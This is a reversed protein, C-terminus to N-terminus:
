TGMWQPLRLALRLLAAAFLVLVVVQMVRVQRESRRGLDPDAAAAELFGTRRAISFHRWSGAKSPTGGLASLKRLATVFAGPDSSTRASFLDAQQELRRSFFGFVFVWYLAAFVLMVIAQHTAFENTVMDGVPEVWGGAGLMDVINVYFCVFALAFVMYFGLHHRRIHGVEHAFVAEVEEDTCNALLADTLLVYRLQPVIGVVAANPLHNYTHWVLIDRCRFGERRCLADLRDRLPGPALSSTQWVLRLLGAGLTVITLLVALSLLADILGFNESRGWLIRAIGSVLALLLWPALLVALETRFRLSLYQRLSLGMRGVAREFRHDFAMATGIMLLAPALLVLDPLVPVTGWEFRIVHCLVDATAPWQLAFVDLLVFGVIGFNLARLIRVARMDEWGAGAACCRAAAGTGVWCAVANVGALALVGLLSWQWPFTPDGAPVPTYLMLLSILLTLLM